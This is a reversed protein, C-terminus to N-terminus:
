CADLKEADRQELLPTAKEIKTQMGSVPLSAPIRGRFGTCLTSRHMVPSGLAPCAQAARVASPWSRPPRPEERPFPPCASYRKPSPSLAQQPFAAASIARAILPTLPFKRGEKAPAGGRALRAGLLLVSGAGEPGFPDLPAIRRCAAALRTARLSLCAPQWLERPCVVQKQSRAKRIRKEHARSSSAAPPPTSTTGRSRSPLKERGQPGHSQSSSFSGTLSEFFDLQGDQL